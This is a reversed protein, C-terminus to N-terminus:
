SEDLPRARELWVGVAARELLTLGDLKFALLELDTLEGGRTQAVPEGGRVVTAAGDAAREVRWPDPAQYSRRFEWGKGDLPEFVGLLRSDEALVAWGRDGREIRFRGQMEFHGEVSDITAVEEPQDVRRARVIARGPSSAPADEWSVRGVPALQRDYVKLSASRRRLKFRESGDVESVIIRRGSAELQRHYESTAGYPSSSPEERCGTLLGLAVAAVIVAVVRSAVVLDRHRPRQM